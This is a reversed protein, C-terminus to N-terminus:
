KVHTNYFEDSAFETAAHNLAITTAEMIIREFESATAWSLTRSASGKILKEWLISQDDPNLLKINVGVKHWGQMYFDFWFEEINGEIVANYRFDGPSTGDIAV